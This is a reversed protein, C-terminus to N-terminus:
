LQEIPREAPWQTDVKASKLKATVWDKREEPSMRSILECLLRIPGRVDTSKKKDEQIYKYIMQPSINLVAGAQAPNLHMSECWLRFSKNDDVFIDKPDLIAGPTERTSKAARSKM